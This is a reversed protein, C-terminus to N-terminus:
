KVIHGSTGMMSLCNGDNSLPQKNLSNTLVLACMANVGMTNVGSSTMMM